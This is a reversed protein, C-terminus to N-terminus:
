EVPTPTTIFEVKIEGAVIAKAVTQIEDKLKQPIKNELIYYPALGVGKEKLGYRYTTVSSATGNLIKGCIDIFPVSVNWILSTLINHPALSHQDGIGGIEWVNREKVAQAVGFVMGDGSGFIVDAGADILSLAAERAKGADEWDYTYIEKIKVNTGHKQNYGKVGQKFGEASATLTPVPYANVIGVIGSKTMGAALWGALYGGEHTMLQWYYVNPAPEKWYGYYGGSWVFSINPFDKAVRFMAEGMLFDHVLIINYGLMAYERIVREADPPSVWESYAIAFGYTKNIAELGRYAMENWSLDDHAGPLVLAVKLKRKEPTPSPHIKFYTVVVAAVVIIAILAVVFIWKKAFV